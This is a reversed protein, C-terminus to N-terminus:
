VPHHVTWWPADVMPVHDDLSAIDKKARALDLNESGYLAGLSALGGRGWPCHLVPLSSWLYVRLDSKEDIRGLVEQGATVAYSKAIYIKKEM